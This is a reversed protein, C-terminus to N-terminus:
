ASLFLFPHFISLNFSTKKVTDQLITKPFHEIYTKCLKVNGDHSLSVFRVLMQSFEPEM